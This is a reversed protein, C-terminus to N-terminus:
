LQQNEYLVTGHAQRLQRLAGFHHQLAASQAHLVFAHPYVYSLTGPVFSCVIPVLTPGLIFEM